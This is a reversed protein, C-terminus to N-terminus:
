RLSSSSSPSAPTRLYLLRSGISLRYLLIGISIVIYLSITSGGTTWIALLYFYNGRLVVFTVDPRIWYDRCYGNIYTNRRTEIFIFNMQILLERYAIILM